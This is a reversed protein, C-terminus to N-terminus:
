DNNHTDVYYQMLEDGMKKAWENKRGRGSWKETESKYFKYVIDSISNKEASKDKNFKKQIEEITIGYSKMSKIILDLEIAKEEKIILQEERILAEKKARIEDLRQSM